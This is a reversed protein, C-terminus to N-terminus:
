PNSNRAEIRVLCERGWAAKCIEEQIFILQDLTSMWETSLVTYITVLKEFWRNNLNFQFEMTTPQVLTHLVPKINPHTLLDLYIMLREYFGYTATHFSYSIFPPKSKRIRHNPSTNRAFCSVKAELLQFEQTIRNMMEALQFTRLNLEAYINKEFKLQM